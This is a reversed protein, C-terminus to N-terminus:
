EGERRRREEELIERFTTGREGREIAELSAHVQRMLEANNFVRHLVREVHRHRARRHEFLSVGATPHGESRSEAEDRATTRGAALDARARELRHELTLVYILQEVDIEEPMEALLALVDQKKM